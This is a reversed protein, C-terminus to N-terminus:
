YLILDHLASALLWYHVTCISINLYMGPVYNIDHNMQVYLAHAFVAFTMVPKYFNMKWCLYITCFIYM